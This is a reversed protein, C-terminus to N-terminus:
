DGNGHEFYEKEVVVLHFDHRSIINMEKNITLGGELIWTAEYIGPKIPNDKTSYYPDGEKTFLKKM